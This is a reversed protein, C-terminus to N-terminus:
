PKDLEALSEKLGQRRWASVSAEHPLTKDAAPLGCAHVSGPEFEEQCRGCLVSLRHIVNNKAIDADRRKRDTANLKRRHTAPHREAEKSHAPFSANCGPELCGWQAGFKAPDEIAQETTPAPQVWTPPTGPFRAAFALGEDTQSWLKPM